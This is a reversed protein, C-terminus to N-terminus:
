VSDGENDISVEEQQNSLKKVKKHWPNNIGSHFNGHNLTDRYTGTGNDLNYAKWGACLGRRPAWGERVAKKITNSSIGHGKCFDNLGGCIIFEIGSPSILKWNASKNNNIGARTPWNSPNETRLKSITNGIRKNVEPWRSFIHKGGTDLNICLPNNLETETLYKCELLNLETASAGYELIKRSINNNGKSKIYDKIIVGSGFYTPDLTLQSIVKHQGIYYRGDPLTTRYVFGYVKTQSNSLTTKKM